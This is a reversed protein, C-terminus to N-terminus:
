TRTCIVGPMQKGACKKLHLLGQAFRMQVPNSRTAWSRVNKLHLRGQANKFQGRSANINIEVTNQKCVTRLMLDAIVHLITPSDNQGM